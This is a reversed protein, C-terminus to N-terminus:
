YLNLSRSDNPRFQSGVTGYRKLEVQNRWLTLAIWTCPKNREQGNDRENDNFHRQIVSAIALMIFAVLFLGGRVGQFLHWRGWMRIWKEFSETLQWKATLNNIPVNNNTYDCYNYCLLSCRSETVM